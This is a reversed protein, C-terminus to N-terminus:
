KTHRRLMALGGLLLLGLTAPEPIVFVTGKDFDGGLVTMGYLASGDLTLSGMFGMMGISGDDGGGAFERMLAFNSGDTGMSFVTGLNSDGGLRTIGYLTSGSLSLRGYPSEGDDVGAAFEHLLVFNSGDTGVSFATGEDFGGGSSTMGYLTSGGLTLSGYPARGDSVGGAFEHVLAFNSGDTDVSFITGGGSDGGFLTMGYLTSGDLMLSGYSSYGDDVGGAFEHLLTFDSGDTGVSYVVGADFRGGIRTTGYLTTGDVIPTGRPNEGDKAGGAFEHLLAFDSGDTGVSFVVGKGFDGGFDTGGYLTSGDVTLSGYPISGDNVGGAFEHLLAFGSGDTGISFVTGVSSDGGMPTMGYLTSGDVALSDSPFSGDDGGGAFEHLLGFGASYTPGATTLTVGVVLLVSMTRNM